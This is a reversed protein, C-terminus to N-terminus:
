KSNSNIFSNNRRVAYVCLRKGTQRGQRDRCTIHTVDGAVRAGECILVNEDMKMLKYTMDKEGKGIPNGM